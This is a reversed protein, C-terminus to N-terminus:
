LAHNTTVPIEVENIKCMYRALELMGYENEFYNHIYLLVQIATVM